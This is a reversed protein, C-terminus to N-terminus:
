GRTHCLYGKRCFTTCDPKLFIANKKVRTRFKVGSRKKMCEKPLLSHEDFYFKNGETVEKRRNLRQVWHYKLSM